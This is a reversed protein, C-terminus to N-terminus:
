TRGDTAFFFCSRGCRARQQFCFTDTDERLTAAQNRVVKAGATDELRDFLNGLDLLAKWVLVNDYTEFPLKQYEDQPDQLSSYLGVSIEYHEAIRDRLIALAERHDHLFKMDGTREVYSALAIIPAAAEDLEFGDELVVGDIFRSHTGTDRLQVTLACELAERALGRDIDLLGPFSWLMADRDWYAASVYYRPSRSTVGVFQETDITKGWAYLATFLFNRNMLLDLSATGTTRTRSRCWDAAKAIEADAGNRDLMLELAHANHDASFEELGAGLVFIAEATKGPEVTEVHQADVEPSVTLPPLSMRAQSGPHILSWAFHTDNTLYSFVEGADVWPAAALTRDGKLRVPVYTVRDLAGWSAKLGLVVPVSESRHNMLTMRLFAGRMGPPACWTLTMELGGSTLNATPIWYEILDWAPNLFPVPKGDAEIYPQLVPTGAEGTVQLLGRDHMSLVNFSTLAGNDARIDPLAIWENGTPLVDGPQLRLPIRSPGESAFLMSSFVFLLLFLRWLFRFDAGQSERTVTIESSEIKRAEGSTLKGAIEGGTVARGGDLILRENDRASTQSREGRWRWDELRPIETTRKAAMTTFIRM